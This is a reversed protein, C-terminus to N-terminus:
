EEKSRLRNVGRAAMPTGRGNMVHWSYVIVVPAVLSGLAFDSLEHALMFPIGPIEYLLASSVTSAGGLLGTAINTEFDWVFACITLIAGFFLNSASMSKLDSETWVKAAVYGALAFLLEGGVLFPLIAGAIGYPSVFGWITESLVAVAAGARFGFVFAAVFVLVDLLKVNAYPALAFDSAVIAATFVAVAAVFGSRHMAM